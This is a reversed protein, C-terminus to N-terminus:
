RTENINANVRAASLEIRKQGVAAQVLDFLADVTIPKFGTWERSIMVSNLTGAPTNLVEALNMHLLELRLLAMDQADLPQMSLRNAQEVRKGIPFDLVDAM